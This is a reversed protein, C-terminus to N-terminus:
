CSSLPTLHPSAFSAGQLLEESWCLVLEALWGAAMWCVRDSVCTGFASVYVMAASLGGVPLLGAAALAGLWCLPLM